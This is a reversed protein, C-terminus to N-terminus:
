TAHPNHKPANMTGHSRDIGRAVANRAIAISCLKRNKPSTNM